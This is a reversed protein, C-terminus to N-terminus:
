VPDAVLIKGGERAPGRDVTGALRDLLDGLRPGALYDKIATFARMAMARCRDPDALLDAVTDELDALDWRVPVYTEGPRYIDCFCDMHGMDPKVMVSGTLVAEIDRWCLEGFGFPSFCLRSRRMEQMFAAPPVAGEWAVHHRAALRAVAERAERRMMVYWHTRAGADDRGSKLLSKPALAFRAHVDIGREGDPPADLREFGRLLAPATAFGPALVLRDVIEPACRWDPMDPVLGFRDAYYEELATHAPRLARYYDRDRQLSKKAYFAVHDGVRDAFRVDTPAFWDFYTIPAAPNIRKLRALVAELEGQAPQYPSQVFIATADAALRDADAAPYPVARFAYGQAAFRDAYHFFPYFQPWAIKDDVHVLLIRRPVGSPFGRALWARSWTQLPRYRRRGDELIAASLASLRNQM